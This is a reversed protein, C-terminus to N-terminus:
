NRRYKELKKSIDEKSINKYANYFETKILADYKPRKDIEELCLELFNLLNESFIPPFEELLKSAGIQAFGISFENLMRLITSHEIHESDINVSYKIYPHKFYICELLTIGLSWVDSRIDYPSLFNTIREPAMYILTGAFTTALSDPLGRAIGFDALKIEGNWNLLINGPKVDRHMIKEQQCYCFNLADIISVTIKGLIIEPFEIEKDFTHINKCLELLSMEMYEMCILLGNVGITMGYFDVINEHITVKKLMEVEKMDINETINSGRAQTIPITKIIVQKNTPEHTHKNVVRGNSGSYILTEDIFDEMNFSYIDDIVRRFKIPQNVVSAGLNINPMKRLVQSTNGHNRDSILGIISHLDSCVAKRNTAAFLNILM